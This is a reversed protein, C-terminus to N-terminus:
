NMSEKVNLAVIEEHDRLFLMGESPTPATWSRRDEFVTMRGTERYGEATAEALFLVGLDSLLFLLGDASVLSGKGLGRKSWRIDGTELDLCRLTAQDFGYIHGEYIVPSSYSSRLRHQHWVQDIQWGDQGSQVALLRGGVELPGSVLFRDPPIFIPQTSAWGLAFHWLRRGDITAGVLNEHMWTVIQRETGVTVGVPSSYGGPQDLAAWLIEGTMRDFGALSKGQTGTYVLLLNGEVLPSSTYAFESPDIRPDPPGYKALRELGPTVPFAEEIDVQWIVEGNLRNLAALRGEAGLVYILNGAITPTARPGNGFQDFFKKGLKHRWVESGDNRRFAVAYEHEEGAYLTYVDDEAAVISSFGNGLPRRWQVSPGGEPWSRLLGMEEGLGARDPGRFQSWTRSAATRTDEARGVACLVVSGIVFVLLRTIRTRPM